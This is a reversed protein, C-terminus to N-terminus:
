RYFDGSKLLRGDKTYTWRVRKSEVDGLNQFPIGTSANNVEYGSLTGKGAGAIWSRVDELSMGLGSKCANDLWNEVPLQYIQEDPALYFIVSIERKVDYNKGSYFVIYAKKQSYNGTTDQQPIEEDVPVDGTQIKQRILIENPSPPREQKRMWKGQAWYYDNIESQTIIKFRERVWLGVM